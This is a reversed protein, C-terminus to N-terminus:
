PELGEACRAHMGQKFLETAFQKSTLCWDLRYLESPELEYPARVTSTSWNSDLQSCRAFMGQKFLQTAFQKSALCWDLREYSDM